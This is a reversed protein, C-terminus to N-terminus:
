VVSVTRDCSWERRRESQYGGVARKSTRSRTTAIWWRRPGRAGRRRPCQAALCPTPGIASPPHGDESGRGAAGNRCWTSLLVPGVNAPIVVTLRHDADRLVTTTGRVPDLPLEHQEFRDSCMDYLALSTKQDDTAVVEFLRQGDQSWAVVLLAVGGPATRLLAAPGSELRLRGAVDRWRTGAHRARHRRTPKRRRRGRARRAPAARPDDRGAAGAGRSRTAGCRRLDTRGRGRRHHRRTPRRTVRVCASRDVIPEITDGGLGSGGSCSPLGPLRGHPPSRHPRGPHRRRGAVDGVPGGGDGRWQSRGACPLAGGRNRRAALAPRSSRRARVPRHPEGGLPLPAEDLDFPVSVPHSTTALVLRDGVETLRDDDIQGEVSSRRAVGHDLDVTVLGDAGADITPIMGTSTSFVHQAPPGALVGWPPPEVSPDPEPLVGLLGVLVLFAAAVGLAWGVPRRRVPGRELRAPRPRRRREARHPLM